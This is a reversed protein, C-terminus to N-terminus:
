YRVANTPQGAQRCAVTGWQNNHLIEVRQCGQNDHGVLRLDEYGCCVGADESHSCDHRGWGHQTCFSLGYENGACNVNDMWIMLNSPGGFRQLARANRTVDGLQRCVVRADTDDWHDDCVTGWTGSHEIEVRCCGDPRCATLRVEDGGCCVGVDESHACNHNGWGNSGCATLFAENGNCNVNDLWIPGSGG